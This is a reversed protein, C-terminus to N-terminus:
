LNSLKARKGAAKPRTKDQDVVPRAPKKEQRGPMQTIKKKPADPLPVGAKEYAEKFLRSLKM